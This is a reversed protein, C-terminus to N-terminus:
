KTAQFDITPTPINLAKTTLIYKGNWQYYNGEFDFWYVYEDSSGFTGDAQLFESSCQGKANTSSCYGDPYGAIPELRKLSSTVKGKVTSRFIITGTESLGYFFLTTSPKNMIQLRNNINDQEVSSPIPDPNKQSIGTSAKAPKSGFWGANVMLISTAFLLIIFISLGKMKAQKNM